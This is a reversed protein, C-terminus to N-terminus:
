PFKNTSWAKFTFPHSRMTTEDFNVTSKPICEFFSNWTHSFVFIYIIHTRTKLIFGFLYCFFLRFRKEWYGKKGWKRIFCSMTKRKWNHEISSSNIKKEVTTRSRSSFLNLRFSMNLTADFAFSDMCHWQSEVYICKNIWWLRWLNQFGNVFLFWWFQEFLIQLASNAAFHCFITCKWQKNKKKKWVFNFQRSLKTEMTLISDIFIFNLFTVIKTCNFRMFLFLWEICCCCQM